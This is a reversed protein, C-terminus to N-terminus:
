DELTLLFMRVMSPDLGRRYDFEDRCEEFDNRRIQHTFDYHELLV